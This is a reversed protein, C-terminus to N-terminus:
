ALLPNQNEIDGLYVKLITKNQLWDAWEKIANLKFLQVIACDFIHCLLERLYKPASKTLILFHQDFFRKPAIFPLCFTVNTSKSYIKTGISIAGNGIWASCVCCHTFINLSTQHLQCIKYKSLSLVWRFTFINVM